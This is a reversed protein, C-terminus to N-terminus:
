YIYISRGVMWWGGDVVWGVWEREWLGIMLSWVEDCGWGSRKTGRLGQGEVLGNRKRRLGSVPVVHRGSGSRGRKLNGGNGLAAESKGFLLPHKCRPQSNYRLPWSAHSLQLGTRTGNQPIQFSRSKRYYKQQNCYSVTFPASRLQSPQLKKDGLTM